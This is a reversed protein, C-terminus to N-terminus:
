RRNFFKKLMDAAAERSDKSQQDTRPPLKGPAKKDPRKLDQPLAKTDGAKADGTPVSETKERTQTDDMHFMRTEADPRRRKEIEEAEELWQSVDGLETTAAITSGEATRAAAEKIDTVHPRKIKAATQEIRLEFELPGVRLVDGTLLVTDEAIREGNVCTGNRSNLDRVIVEHESTIIVCHRRSIAEAQPRLNCEDGRGILCKPMPIKVEKGTNSGQLIKLRVQM